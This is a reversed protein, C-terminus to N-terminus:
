NKVKVPSFDTVAFVQWIGREVCNGVERIRAEGVNLWEINNANFEQGDLAKVIRSIVEKQVEDSMSRHTNIGSVVFHVVSPLEEGELYLLTDPKPVYEDRGNANWRSGEYRNLIPRVQEDTPGDVWTVSLWASGTGTGMRVSFKTGPFSAKLAQRVLVATEKTSIYRTM